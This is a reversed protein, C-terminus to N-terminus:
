NVFNGCSSTYIIAIWQWQLWIEYTSYASSVANSWFNAYVPLFLSLFSFLNAFFGQYVHITSYFLTFDM